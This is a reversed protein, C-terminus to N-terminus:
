RRAPPTRTTPARTPLSAAAPPDQMDPTAVDVPCPPRCSPRTSSAARGRVAPARAAELHRRHRGHREDLGPPPLLKGDSSPSRTPRTTRSRGRCTSSSRRTTRLNAGTLRAIAGTGDPVDSGLYAYNDTIWLIPNSPRRPRTSPWASSPATPRATGAPPPRRAHAGHQHDRAHQGPHRRRQDDYRYIQGFISGAYLKGDPGIVLSTYAKGTPRVPTPGTSPSGSLDGGPGSSNRLHHLGLSFPLFTGGVSTRSTTTSREFRYLTSPLLPETRRFSVGHRRWRQHRRWAPM